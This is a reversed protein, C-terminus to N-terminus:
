ILCLSSYCKWINVERRGAAAAARARDEEYEKTYAQARAAEKERREEEKRQAIDREQKRCLVSSITM